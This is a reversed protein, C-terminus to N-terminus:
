EQFIINLFCDMAKKINNKMSFWCVSDSWSTVVALTVCMLTNWPFNPPTSQESWFTVVALAISLLTDWPFNPPTSQESWFTVVVLAICMSPTNWLFNPAHDAPKYRTNQFFICKSMLSYMTLIRTFIIIKQMLPVM